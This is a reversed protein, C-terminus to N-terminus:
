FGYGDSFVMLDDLESNLISYENRLYLPADYLDYVKQNNPLWINTNMDKRRLFVRLMLHMANCKIKRGTTYYVCRYSSNKKKPSQYSTSVKIDLYSKIRPDEKLSVMMDPYTEGPGLLNVDINNRYFLQILDIVLPKNVDNIRPVHYRYKTNHKIIFKVCDTIRTVLKASGAGAGRYKIINYNTDRYVVDNLTLTTKTSM